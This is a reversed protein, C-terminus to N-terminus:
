RELKWMLPQASVEETRQGSLIAGAVFESAQLVKPGLDQNLSHSRGPLEEYTVTRGLGRLIRVSFRALRVDVVEDKSGHVMLVPSNRSKWSGARPYTFPDPLFGSLVAVASVRQRLYVGLGLAGGQSFGIIGGKWRDTGFMWSDIDMLRSVNWSAGDIEGSAWPGKEDNALLDFWSPGSARRFSNFRVDAQPVVVRVYM